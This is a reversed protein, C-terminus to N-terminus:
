LCGFETKMSLMELASAVRARTEETAIVDDVNGAYAALLPSSVYLAYEEELAKRKELPAKAGALKESWQMAVGSEPKMVGIKAFDLAFTVDAGLAKSGMVTYALGYSAGIYVTVLATKAKAYAEALAAAARATDASHVDCDDRLGEAGVLTLVSLGFADCLKIFAAAKKMAGACLKGEKQAPNNAVVGVPVGGIFAFATVMAPAHEKKYEFYSGGDALVALVEHAEYAKDACVSALEPTRRDASDEIGAYVTKDLRNSPLHSLLQRTKAFADAEDAALVDAIGKKAAYVATGVGDQAKDFVDAPLVSMSGERCIINVDASEAIVAGHGCAKGLVLCIQPIKGKVDSMKKMVAGYGGLVDVGEAVSAGFSDLMAVVPAGNKVALEYLSCIKRASEATFAANVRSMDQAYAFVLRGDLSGYGCVCGAYAEPDTTGLENAYAKVYANTEVFTGADFFAALHAHASKKGNKALTDSSKRDDLLKKAKSLMESRKELDM